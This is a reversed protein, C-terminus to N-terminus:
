PKLKKLGSMLREEMFDLIPYTCYGCLMMIGDRFRNTEDVWAGAMVGVLFALSINLLFMASSFQRDEKLNTRLYKAIGGIVALLGPPALELMKEVLTQLM